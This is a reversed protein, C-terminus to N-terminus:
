GLILTSEKAVEMNLVVFDIPIYCDQIKVLIDEAIGVPYRVISDALQLMMLTLMLQMLNLKNFIAKPMVSVSAGLDCLAQDFYQIGISCSITPCGPDKKKEPFDLIAASCEEILKVVETSPLPRKNIIDKMYKAYSPVLLVDMLPVSVHIKEIMEVFHTFQEDM